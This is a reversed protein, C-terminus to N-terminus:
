ASSPCMQLWMSNVSFGYSFQSRHLWFHLCGVGNGVGHTVPAGGGGGSMAADAACKTPLHSAPDVAATIVTLMCLSAQQQRRRYWRYGHVNAEGCLGLYNHCPLHLCMLSVDSM